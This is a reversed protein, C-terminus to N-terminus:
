HIHSKLDSLIFTFFLFLTANTVYNIIGVNNYMCLAIHVDVAVHRDHGRFFFM